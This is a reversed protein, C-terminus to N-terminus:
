RVKRWGAKVPPNLKYKDIKSHIQRASLGLLAAADKQCWSCRELAAKVMQREVEKLTLLDFDKYLPMPEIAAYVIDQKFLKLAMQAALDVEADEEFTYPVSIEQGDEMGLVLIAM